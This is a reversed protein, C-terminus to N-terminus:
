ARCVLPDSAVAGHPPDGAHAFPRVVPARDDVRAGRTQGALQAFLSRIVAWTADALDTSRM